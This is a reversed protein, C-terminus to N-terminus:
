MFLLIHSAIKSHISWLATFLFRFPGQSYKKNEKKEYKNYSQWCTQYRKDGDVKKLFLKDKEKIQRVSPVFKWQRAWDYFKSLNKAVDMKPWIIFYNKRPCLPSLGYSHWYLIPFVDCPIESPNTSLPPCGRDHM